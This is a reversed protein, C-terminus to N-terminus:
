RKKGKDSRYRLLKAPNGAVVSGAKVNKTVVAGAGVQAGWGIRVGPLLLAGAGIDAGEEIVVPAFHLPNDLVAKSAPAVNHASTLVIVGPGIGVNRAISIGGAAHFFCQAGIWVGEDIFFVNTHYAHLITDHGVYVNSAIHINQPHFVRVGEELIVNRGLSKFQAKKVHGCGHSKFRHSSM